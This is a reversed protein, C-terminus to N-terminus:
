LIAETLSCSNSLGARWACQAEQERDSPPPGRQGGRWSDWPGQEPRCDPGRKWCCRLQPTHPM